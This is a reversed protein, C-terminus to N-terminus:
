AFIYTLDSADHALVLSLWPSQRSRRLSIRARVARNSGSSTAGFSMSRSAAQSIGCSVITSLASGAGRHIAANRAGTRETSIRSPNRKDAVSRACRTPRHNKRFAGGCTVLASCNAAARMMPTVSASNMITTPFTMGLTRAFQIAPRRVFRNSASGSKHRVVCRAKPAARTRDPSTVSITAAIAGAKASRIPAVIM